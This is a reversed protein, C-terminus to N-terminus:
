AAASNGVVAPDAGFREAFQRRFSPLSRYGCARAVAHLPRRTMQLQRMGHDLRAERVLVRLSTHELALRRRLTAGSMHLHTEIEASSWAREPAAGVLMRIRAALTPDCALRFQAAGTRALALLIGLLAHDRAAELLGDADDAPLALLGRLADHLPALAGKGVADGSTPPPAHADLLDRAMGIVRWPFGICWARYSGQITLNRVTGKFTRHMMLYEGVGVTTRVGDAVVVKRGCLPIVLAPQDIATARITYPQMAAIVAGGSSVGALLWDPLGATDDTAAPPSAIATM